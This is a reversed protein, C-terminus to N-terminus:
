CGSSPPMASSTSSRRRSDKRAESRWPSPDVHVRNEIVGAGGMDGVDRNRSMLVWGVGAAELNAVVNPNARLFDGLEVLSEVVKPENYADFLPRASQGSTSPNTWAGHSLLQMIALKAENAGEPLRTWNRVFAHVQRLADPTPLKVVVPLRILAEVTDRTAAFDAGLDQRVDDATARRRGGLELHRQLMARSPRGARLGPRPAASALMRGVAQNGAIRQLGLLDRASPNQAVKGHGAL